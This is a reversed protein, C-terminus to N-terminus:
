QSSTRDRLKKSMMITEELIDELAAQVLEEYPQPLQALVWQMTETEPKGAALRAQVEALQPATLLDPILLGVRKEANSAMRQLIREQQESPADQLRLATLIIARFEPTM